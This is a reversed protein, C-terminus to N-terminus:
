GLNNFSEAATMDLHVPGRKVGYGAARRMSNAKEPLRNYPRCEAACPALGEYSDQVGRSGRLLALFAAQSSEHM